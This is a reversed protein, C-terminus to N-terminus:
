AAPIPALRGRLARASWDLLPTLSEPPSWDNVVALLRFYRERRPDNMREVRASLRRHADAEDAAPGRHDPRDLLQAHRAVLAAIVADADASDPAVSAALAPGVTDRVAGALGPTPSCDRRGRDAVHDEALERLLRRFDPDRTLAALELWAQLQDGTPDDPLEPTMTRRIGALGHDSTRFADDLFDDALRRREAASLQALRHMLNADEPTGGLKAVTAMVARRLRLARIQADLAQVHTAAVDAFPLEDDVLKRTTALDLGLDRLTRVLELRAAADPGYLRHGTPNRRTPTVIGADSYFRITRVSVGTRRALDGIAYLMDPSDPVNPVKPIDGDNM